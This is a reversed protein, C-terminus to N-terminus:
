CPLRSDTTCDAWDPGRNGVPRYHRRAALENDPMRPKGGQGGENGHLYGTRTCKLSGGQGGERVHKLEADHNEHHHPSGYIDRSTSPRRATKPHKHGYARQHPRAVVPHP